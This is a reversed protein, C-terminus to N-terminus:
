SISSNSPSSPDRDELPQTQASLQSRLATIEAQLHSVEAQLSDREARLKDREAQLKSLRRAQEKRYGTRAAYMREKIGGERVFRRELYELYRSLMRDTIHCLTLMTNSYEEASWREAYPLYEECRNHTRCFQLMATYRPHASSWISLGRRKLHDEYDERLEQLSGRAINLLRLEIETSTRGDEIGEVINQKGSRAAQIMQDVTRDKYSPPLFRECFRYTLQYITDAKQYFHLEDIKTSPRLVNADSPEQQRM